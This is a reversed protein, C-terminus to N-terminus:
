YFRVNNTSPQSSIPPPFKNKRKSSAVYPHNSLQFSTLSTYNPNIPSPMGHCNWSKKTFNKSTEPGNTPTIGEWKISKLSMKTTPFKWRTPTTSMTEIRNTSPPPTLWPQLELMFSKSATESPRSLLQIKIKMIKKRRKTSNTTPKNISILSITTQSHHTIPTEPVVPCRNM